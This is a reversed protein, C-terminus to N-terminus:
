CRRRARGAIGMAALVGGLMFVPAPLPVAAFEVDSMFTWANQSIHQIDFTSKNIALQSFTFPFLDAGAPEPVNYTTGDIVLSSPNDVCGFGDDDALHLTIATISPTGAFHFTIVPNINVWGVYPGPGTPSEAPSWRLTSIVGETLDGLGGALPSADAFPDWTAGSGIYSEDWYNYSGSSGNPMDSVTPNIPAAMATNIALGLGLGVFSLILSKM